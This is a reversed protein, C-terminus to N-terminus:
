TTSVAPAAADSQPILLAEAFFRERSLMGLVARKHPFDFEKLLAYGCRQLSKRMKQNDWRPEVVIHRTRCDDLFLYHSLSPLWATLFPKGRFRAEGVLAHWGRDYDGVDYFPAIRDERAWYVEFYGFPEGDLAGILGIVHPDAAGRELYARHAALDGQEEWFHAVVPDNMWRNFLALDRECDVTRLSLTQGLWPIQRQYVLGAPKGPRLPHRKGESMGYQLAYPPRARPLWLRPQQWLLQREARPADAPAQSAITEALGAPLQGPALTLAACAPHLSFTADLAALWETETPAGLAGPRWELALGHHRMGHPGISWTQRGAATALHLEGDGAQVVVAQGDVHAVHRPGAGPAPERSPPSSPEVAPVPKEKLPFPASAARLM